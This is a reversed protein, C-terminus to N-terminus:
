FDKSSEGFHSKCGYCWWGPGDKHLRVFLQKTDHCYPCFPGEQGGEDNPSWYVDGDFVMQRSKKLLAIERDKDDLLARIDVINLKADALAEVLSAVQLKMEAKELSFISDKLVKAIDTAAKIGSLAATITPIDM